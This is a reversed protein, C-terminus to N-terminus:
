TNALIPYICLIILRFRFRFLSGKGGNTLDILSGLAFPHALM